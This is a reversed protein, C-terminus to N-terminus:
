ESDDDDKKKTIEALAAKEWDEVSMREPILFSPKAGDSAPPESRTVDHGLWRLAEALEEASVEHVADDESPGTYVLVERTAHNVFLKAM